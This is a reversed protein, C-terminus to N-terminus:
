NKIKEEAKSKELEFLSVLASKMQNEENEFSSFVDEDDLTEGDNYNVIPEEVINKHSDLEFSYNTLELLLVHFRSAHDPM